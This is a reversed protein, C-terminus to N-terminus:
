NGTVIEKARPYFAHTFQRLDDFIFIESFPHIPLREDITKVFTDWEDEMYVTNMTCQVILVTNDPYPKTAKKSIQKLFIDIYQQVHEDNTFGVPESEICGDKLRKLGSVGFCGGTKELRERSLYENPHMTCTVELYGNPPYYDKSVYAGRQVLEADYTQDGDIWKISMYRGIRYNEQVYKCIPLLEELLRKELTTPRIRLRSPGGESERINEFLEYVLSCFKLGDILKGDFRDLSIKEM